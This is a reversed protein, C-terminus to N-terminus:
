AVRTPLRARRSRGPRAPAAGATPSGGRDAGAVRARVNGDGGVLYEEHADAGGAARCMGLVLVLLLLWLAGVIVGIVFV